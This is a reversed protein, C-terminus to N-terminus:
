QYCYSVCIKYFNIGAYGFSIYNSIVVRLMRRSLDIGSPKIKDLILM